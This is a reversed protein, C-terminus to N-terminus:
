MSDACRMEVTRCRLADTWTADWLRKRFPEVLSKMKRHHPCRCTQDIRQVTDVALGCLQDWDDQMEPCGYM